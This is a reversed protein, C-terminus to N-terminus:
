EGAFHRYTKYMLPICEKRFEEYGDPYDNTTLSYEQGNAFHITIELSQEGDGDSSNEGNLAPFGYKELLDLYRGVPLEEDTTDYTSINIGKELFHGEPDQCSFVWQKRIPNLELRFYEGRPSSYRPIAIAMLDVEADPFEKPYYASWDEHAHFFRSLTRTIDNGNPPWSNYGRAKVTTGDSFTMAFRFSDDMDLVGEPASVHGDFGNWALIDYELLVKVLQDIEEAPVIVTSTRGYDSENAQLEQWDEGDIEPWYLESGSTRVEYGEDTLRISLAPGIATGETRYKLGTLVAGAPLAQPATLIEEEKAPVFMINQRDADDMKISLIIRNRAFVIDYVAFDTYDSGPWAAATEKINADTLEDSRAAFGSYCYVPVTACPTAYRRLVVERANVQLSWQPSGPAVWLGQLDEPLDIEERYMGPGDMINGIVRQQYKKWAFVGAAVIVAAALLLKMFKGKGAM